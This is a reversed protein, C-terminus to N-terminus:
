LPRAHLKISGNVLLMLNCALGSHAISADDVVIMALIIRDLGNWPWPVLLGFTTFHGLALPVLAIEDALLHFLNAFAFLLRRGVSLAM